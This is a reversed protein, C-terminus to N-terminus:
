RLAAMELEPSVTHGYDVLRALIAERPLLLVVCCLVAAAYKL